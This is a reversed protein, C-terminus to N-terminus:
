ILNVIMLVPAAESRDMAGGMEALLLHSVLIDNVMDQALARKGECFRIGAGDGAIHCLHEVPRPVTKMECFGFYFRYLPTVVEEEKVNLFQIHFIFNLVMVEVSKSEKPPQCLTLRCVMVLNSILQRPVKALVLVLHHTVEALSKPDENNPVIRCHHCASM